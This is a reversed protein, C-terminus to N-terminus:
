RQVRERLRRAHCWLGQWEDEAGSPRRVALAVAASVPLSAGCRNQRMVYWNGYSRGM